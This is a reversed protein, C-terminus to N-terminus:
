RGLLEALRTAVPELSFEPERKGNPRGLHTALILRAGSELAHHITPLAEIIRNDDEIRRLGDADPAGLPVNLDLRLLVAQNRLALDRISTIRGRDRWPTTNSIMKAPNAPPSDNSDMSRLM